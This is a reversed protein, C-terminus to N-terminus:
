LRWGELVLLGHFFGGWGRRRAARPAVCPKEASQARDSLNRAEFFVPFGSGPSSDVIDSHGTHPPSISIEASGTSPSSSSHASHPTSSSIRASSGRVSPSAGSASSSQPSHPDSEKMGEDALVFLEEDRLQAPARLYLHDKQVVALEDEIEVCAGFHVHHQFARDVVRAGHVREPKELTGARRADVAVLHRAAAAVLDQRSRREGLASHRLGLRPDGEGGPRRQVRDLLQPIRRHELRGHSRPPAQERLDVVAVGCLRHELVLRDQPAVM